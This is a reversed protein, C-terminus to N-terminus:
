KAWMKNEIEPDQQRRQSVSVFSPGNWDTDLRHWKSSTPAREDSSMWLNGPRLGPNHTHLPRLNKSTNNNWLKRSTTLWQNEKHFSNNQCLLFIQRQLTPCLCNSHKARATRRFDRTRIKSSAVAATSRSVSVSICFVILVCNWSQVIRVIACLSFVTM